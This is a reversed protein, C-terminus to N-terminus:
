SGVGPAVGNASSVTCISTNGVGIVIGGRCFSSASLGDPTGDWFVTSFVEEVSVGGWGGRASITYVNVVGYVGTGSEWASGIGIGYDVGCESLSVSRASGRGVRGDGWSRLVTEGSPM